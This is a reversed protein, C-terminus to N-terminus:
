CGLHIFSGQAAADALTGKIICGQNTVHVSLFATTSRTEQQCVKITMQTALEKNLLGAVKQSIIFLEPFPM